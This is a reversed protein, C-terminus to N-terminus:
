LSCTELAGEGGPSRACSPNRALTRMKGTHSEWRAAGKSSRENM